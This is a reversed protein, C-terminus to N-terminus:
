SIIAHPNESYSEFVQIREQSFPMHIEGMRGIGRVAYKGDGAWGARALRGDEVCDAEPEVAPRGAQVFGGFAAVLDHRALGTFAKGLHGELRLFATVAAVPALVAGSFRIAAPL